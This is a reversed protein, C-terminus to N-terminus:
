GPPLPPFKPPPRRFVEQPNQTGPKPYMPQTNDVFPLDGQTVKNFAKKLVPEHEPSSPEEDETPAETTCNLDCCPIFGSGVQLRLGTDVGSLEASKVNLRFGCCGTLCMDGADLELSATTVGSFAVSAAILLKVLQSPM